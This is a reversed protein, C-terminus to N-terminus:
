DVGAFLDEYLEEGLRRDGDLGSLAALLERANPAGAANSLTTVFARASALVEPDPEGEHRAIGTRLALQGGFTVAFSVDDGIDYVDAVVLADGTSVADGDRASLVRLSFGPWPTVAIAM